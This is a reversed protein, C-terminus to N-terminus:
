ATEHAKAAQALGAPDLPPMEAAAIDRESSQTAPEAEAARGDDAPLDSPVDLPEAAEEEVPIDRVEPAAPEAAAADEGSVAEAV